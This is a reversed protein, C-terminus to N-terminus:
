VEMKEIAKLGMRLPIFAVTLGILAIASITIINWFQFRWSPLRGLFYYFQPPLAQIIVIAVVFLMSLVLTLTGGFGSVIKSPNDERINPYIAGLGVSLGSLGLCIIFVVYAQMFITHLHSRLMWNSIIILSECIILSGILAFLFKGYIITRRKIPALGIIWFRQGEISLQPYIFRTTFTALTLSTALLNLFSVLHKWFAESVALYPLNRLNFFYVGLLGFFVLSQSWQVPDRVLSKADKLIIERLPKSLLFTLPKVIWDV